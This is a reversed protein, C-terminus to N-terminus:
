MGRLKIPASEKGTVERYKGIILQLMEDWSSVEQTRALEMVYYNDEEFDGSDISIWIKVAKDQKYGNATRFVNLANKAIYFRYLQDQTLGYTHCLSFFISTSAKAGSVLTTGLYKNISTTQPKWQSIGWLIDGISNCIFELREDENPVINLARNAEQMLLSMHFHFIDVLELHLNNLDYQTDAKSWWPKWGASVAAEVAEDRIASAYDFKNMDTLWDPGAMANNAEAQLTCMTRYAQLDM